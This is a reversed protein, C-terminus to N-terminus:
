HEAKEAPQINPTVWVCPDRTKLDIGKFYNKKKKKKKKLKGGTNM